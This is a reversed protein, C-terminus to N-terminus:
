YENRWRCKCRRFVVMQDRNTTYPAIGFAAFFNGMQNYKQVGQRTDFLATLSLNKYTFTNSLSAIWDPTSNGLIKQDRNVVPFGNDGIVWPRGPELFVTEDDPNAYYRQFSRGYLNGYAEGERIRLSVTSGAYGFHTRLLIEDIGEAIETVENNNKTYNLAMDWNFDGKRIPTGKLTLEIGKNEISGANIIFSSFGTSTAVPVPLIQDKTENKYYALDLGLRNQFFNMETGVEFGITREPVLDNSGKENGRTWGGLDDTAYITNTSYPETGHGVEGYSVRLKGYDIFNPLDIKESFVFSASASPYFFSNNEIPLTSTWDKRATLDLYLFNDYALSLSSFLGILRNKEKYTDTSWTEPNTNNISYLNYIGLEEGSSTLREYSKDLVDHGLTLTAGLRDTLDHTAVLQINSNISRNRITTENVLGQGNNEFVNEGVIGTPGPARHFRFDTFQDLGIRYKADLWNFIKYNVNLGGIYRDVDDTFKNSYNGYIPNNGRGGDERYGRMTGNEFKFDTVDAQPAWYVLRENFSESEVRDGGSNIYSITADMNLRDSIKLSGGFKLNLRKFDSFPIVGEHNLYGMSARFTASENGGSISLNNSFKNGTEYANEFNNFISAPHDPDLARAEAITPGWSPWFSDGNYEGKYGQTYTKQTEPFKNVKEFGYSMEYNVAVRGAKGKKTTIIVAGNGALSGYLATAAAGKLVNISAIDAPNIDALRNSVNRLGGGGVTLTSNDVPLGDIVYLPEQSGSFRTVGRIVLSAGEGPGGGASTIQVGSLKGQLANIVNEQKGQVLEKSGVEQVAYGLAKKERSIGLATVVVGDLDEGENMSIDLVSESGVVIEQTGYGIYSFVITEGESVDLSYKGDLDSIVGRTTGEVLVNVYPVPDGNEDIITGSVTRDQSWAAALLLFFFMSVLYFKKM